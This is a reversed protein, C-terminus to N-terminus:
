VKGTYYLRKARHRTPQPITQDLALARVARQLDPELGVQAAWGLALEVWYGSCGSTLALRLLDQVPFTALRSAIQEPSAQLLGTLLAAHVARYDHELLPLWLLSAKAQLAPTDCWHFGNKVAWNNTAGVYVEYESFTAVHLFSPLM